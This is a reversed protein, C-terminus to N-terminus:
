SSSLCVRPHNRPTTFRIAQWWHSNLCFRQSPVVLLHKLFLHRSVFWVEKNPLSLHNLSYLLERQITQCSALCNGPYQDGQHWTRKCRSLLFSYSWTSWRRGMRARSWLLTLRSNRTNVWHHVFDMCPDNSWYISCRRHSKTLHHSRNPCHHPVMDLLRIGRGGVVVSLRRLTRVRQNYQLIGSSM